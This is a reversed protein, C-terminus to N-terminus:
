RSCAGMRSHSGIIVNVWKRPSLTRAAVHFSLPLYKSLMSQVYEFYKEQKYYCYKRKNMVIRLSQFRSPQVDGTLSWSRLLDDALATFLFVLVRFFSDGWTTLFM